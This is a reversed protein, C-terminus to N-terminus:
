VLLCNVCQGYEAEVVDMVSRCKCRKAQEPDTGITTEPQQNPSASMLIEQEFRYQNSCVPHEFCGEEVRILPQMEDASQQCFRCVPARIAIPLATPKAITPIPYSM